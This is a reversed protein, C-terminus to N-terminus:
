AFSYHTRYFESLLDQDSNAGKIAVVCRVTYIRYAYNKTSIVIDTGFRPLFWGTTPLTLCNHRSRM